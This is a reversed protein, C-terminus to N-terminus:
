YNEKVFDTILSVHQKHKISRENYSQAETSIVYVCGELYEEDLCTRTISKVGESTM